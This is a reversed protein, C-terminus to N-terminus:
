FDGYYVQLCPLRLEKRWMDVVQNRDDLVFEIYYKNAVHQDFMEKKIISDKRADDEERMVLLNYPVNHSALWTETQKRYKGNRGSFLIIQYDKSFMFTQIIEIVPQNPLDTECNTADYPNRDTIIALTGDIDCIIAKPLKQDQEKYRFEPEKEAIFRQYMDKIVKEGVSRSRALDRKICEEVSVDFFKTKIQVEHGTEKRYERVVQEIRAQHRPALNTDDIIVHKGENLAEVILWDRTRLIFKENGKSFKSEDLMARLEDKNIRKYQGPNNKVLDRAFTSKGSAPLGKLIWVTKM